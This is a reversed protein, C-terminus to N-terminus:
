RPRQARLESIARWQSADIQGQQRLAEALPSLIANLVKLEGRLEITAQAQQNLAGTQEGNTREIAQFRVEAAEVHKQLVAPADEIRQQYRGVYMAAGMAVALASALAAALKWIWSAVTSVAVQQPQQPQPQPPPPPQEGTVRRAHAEAESGAPTEIWKAASM